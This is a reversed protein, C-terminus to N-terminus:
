WILWESVRTEAVPGVLASAALVRGLASVMNLNTLVYRETDEGHAQYVDPGVAVLLELHLVSGDADHRRPRASPRGPSPPPPASLPPEPLLHVGPKAAGGATGM